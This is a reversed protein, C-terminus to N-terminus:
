STIPVYRTPEFNQQFTWVAAECGAVRFVGLIGYGHEKVWPKMFDRAAVIEEKLKPDEVIHARGRVRVQVGAEMDNFCIEVRPEASVQRFLDKGKGTHFIIGSEDARYMMMGRVRPAGNEATALHCLPHKNLFELIEQKTM